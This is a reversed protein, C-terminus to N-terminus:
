SKAIRAVFEIRLANRLHLRSEASKHFTEQTGIGCIVVTYDNSLGIVNCADPRGMSEAQEPDLMFESYSARLQEDLV